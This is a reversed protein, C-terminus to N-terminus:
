LHLSVVERGGERDPRCDLLAQIRRDDPLRVAAPVRRGRKALRFDEIEGDSDPRHLADVDLVLFDKQDGTPDAGPPHCELVAEALLEDVHQLRQVLEPEVRRRWHTDAARLDCRAIYDSGTQGVWSFQAGLHGPQGARAGPHSPGALVASRALDVQVVDDVVCPRHGLISRLRDYPLRRDVRDDGKLQDIGADPCTAAHEPGLCQRGLREEVQQGLVARWPSALFSGRPYTVWLYILFPPRSTSSSCFKM